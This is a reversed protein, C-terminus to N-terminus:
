ETAHREDLIRRTEEARQRTIPYCRFLVIAIVISLTQVGVYLAKIKIAILPDISHTKEALTADYGSLALTAASTLATIALALKLAFSTVAGYVGERRLGTHLEDEDCIDAVMSSVMLWCGQTGLGFVFFSVFQLYPASPIMTFWLSLTGIATLVLGTTMGHRKGWRTSVWTILPLSIYSACAQFTGSIGYLSAAQAKDGNCVIYINVYLALASSTFIGCIIIIYTIILIRIKKQELATPKERLLLAPLTGSVIIVLAIGLSVVQAGRVSDGGFVPLLCLKYLWPLSLGAVLGIYMRWALVRTREDYDNSLEYGLATYPIVFVTYAISYIIGMILFYWFMVKESHSPPMWLLPLLVASLVAGILIYPRRRGWRSRTNDSINGMLPDAIADIFRPIFLAMGLLAPSMGLAINYIPMALLIMTNMMFNDALGGIGWAIRRTLPVREDPPTVHVPTLPIM